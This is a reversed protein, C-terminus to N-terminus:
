MYLRHFSREFLLFGFSFCVLSRGHDYPFCAHFHRSTNSRWYTKNLNESVDQLFVHVFKKVIKMSIEEMIRIM